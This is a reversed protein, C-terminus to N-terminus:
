KLNHLEAAAKILMYFIGIWIKMFQNGLKSPAPSLRGRSSSVFENLRSLELSLRAITLFLAALRTCDTKRGSNAKIICVVKGYIEDKSIAKDCRPMMDGKTIFRLEGMERSIDVIRHVVLEGQIRFVVIDGLLYNQVNPLVDLYDGNEIIPRM